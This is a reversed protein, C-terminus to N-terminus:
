GLRYRSFKGLSKLLKVGKRRSSASASKRFRRQELDYGYKNSLRSRQKNTLRGLGRDRREAASPREASLRRSDARGPLQSRVLEARQQRPKGYGRAPAISRYNPNSRGAPTRSTGGPNGRVNMSSSAQRPPVVQPKKKRLAAYGAGAAALAGISGAAAIKARRKRKDKTRRKM